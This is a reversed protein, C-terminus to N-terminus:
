DDKAGAAIWARVQKIQADPLKTGIPMADGCTQTGELKQVLLSEDPKSPVVRTLGSDVCNKSAGPISNKGMAKINVLLKYTSAKDTMKLAGAEGGHCLGSGACGTAVIVDNYVATWSAPDAAPGADVQEKVPADGISYAIVERNDKADRAYVYQLGSKVVVYGDAIAAAGAAITGGTDFQTLEEGSAANLVHLVSGIPVFLLGNALSPAGWTLADFKLPERVDKGDVANLVRVYSTSPPENVIVYFNKGDFAGNMLIGGNSPTHNASLQDRSWLVEGTERKLAWFSGAKDGAAVLSLDGVKALIPNAGFDTDALPDAANSGFITWIDNERVQKAWVRKGTELDIAHIADSGKGVVTYNNGTTAYVIKTTLDVSVTSWVMAGTEDGETTLYTWLLTGDKTSFAEVGGHATKALDGVVEASTSHGVLVKDGAVIASSTGDAASNDPYTKIPGWVIAGDSANLKFLAADAAAHVYLF